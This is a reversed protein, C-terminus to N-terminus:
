CPSTRTANERTLRLRGPRGVPRRAVSVAAPTLDAIKRGRNSPHTVLKPLVWAFYAYPDLGLRRCTQAASLLACLQKIHDGTGAFLANKRLVAVNRLMLESFNNGLPVQADRLFQTLPQWHNLDYQMAKRIPNAEGLTGVREKLWRHFAEAIPGAHRQRYALLEAGRLGKKRAAAEVQYMRGIFHMAKDADLPACDADKRFKRLGHANCGAETRGEVEFIQDYVNLADATATGQWPVKEGDVSVTLFAEIHKGHRTDTPHFLVLDERCFVVVQGNHVPRGKKDFDLLTVGTGDVQLHRGAV